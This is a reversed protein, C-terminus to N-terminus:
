STAEGKLTMKGNTYEGMRFGKYRVVGKRYDAEISKKTTHGGVLKRVAKDRAKDEPSKRIDRNMNILRGDIDFHVRMDDRELYAM